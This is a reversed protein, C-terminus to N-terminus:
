NKENNLFFLLLDNLESKDKLYAILENYDIDKTKIEGKKMGDFAKILDKINKESFSNFLNMFKDLNESIYIKQMEAMSYDINEESQRQIVYSISIKVKNPIEKNIDDKKGIEGIIETEDFCLCYAREKGIILKIPIIRSNKDKINYLNLEKLILTSTEEKNDLIYLKKIYNGIELKRGIAYLCDHNLSIKDIIIKNNVENKNILQPFEITTTGYNTRFKAGWIYLKGCSTLAASNGQFTCVQKFDLNDDIKIETLKSIYNFCNNKIGCQYKDNNGKAFLIGKGKKNQAICIVYNYGCVCSLFKKTNEPPFYKKIENKKEYLNGDEGIMYCSNYDASINVIKVDPILIPSNLNEKIERNLWQYKNRNKDLLYICENKNSAFSSCNGIGDFFRVLMGDKINFNETNKEFKLNTEFEDSSNKQEIFSYINNDEESLLLYKDGDYSINWSYKPIDEYKIIQNLDEQITKKNANIVDLIRELKSSTKKNKISYLSTNINKLPILYINKNVRLKYANDYGSLTNLDIIDQFYYKKTKEDFCFIAIKNYIQEIDNNINQEKKFEIDYLDSKNKFQFENFSNTIM